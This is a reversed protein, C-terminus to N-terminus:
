IIKLYIDYNGLDDDKRQKINSIMEIEHDCVLFYNEENNPKYVIYYKM